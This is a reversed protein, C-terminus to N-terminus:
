KKMQVVTGCQEKRGGSRTRAAEVAEGKARLTGHTYRRTTKPDSHGMLEAITAESHGAEALGTGFTHHLDHWRLDGSPVLSAEM